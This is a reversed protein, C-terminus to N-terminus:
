SATGELYRRAQEVMASESVVSIPLPESIHFWENDRYEEYCVRADKGESAAAFRLVKQAWAEGSSESANDLVIQRVGMHAEDLTYFTYLEEGYKHHWILIFM